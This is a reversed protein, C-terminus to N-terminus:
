GPGRAASRGPPGGSDSPSCSRSRARRRPVPGTRTGSRALHHGFRLMVARHVLAQTWRYIPWPLRPEYEHIAALLHAGDPTVRLELRGRATPRALAGATVYFLQRDPTSREPAFTLVLLPHRMGMLSFRCTREDDVEVRLLPWGGRPLWRMYEHAAWAADRGPPLPLRQVSRVGERPAHPAPRYAHPRHEAPSPTTRELALCWRVAERFSMGPLGLRAQLRRDRCVLDNRLSEILPGVLARPARTILSVWLRSLRPSLLPVPVMPRRVGLEDGVAVMMERYSSVDPGGIDFTQGALEPAGLVGDLLAVATGLDIPQCRTATWAPTFMMPLRRVLRALIEFSSGGPGIVMGARLVTVPVGYAALAREVERRSELHASLPEDPILGGLYAIQEVGARRAARGFNDACILDLDSFRGQVLRASPLMSHVLYVAYRAGALAREVDVLSFLDCAILQDWAGTAGRRGRTLGVIEPRDAREALRRALASGVFGTAGAIVIRDRAM